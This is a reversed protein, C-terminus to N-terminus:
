FQYFDVGLRGSEAQLIEDISNLLLLFTLITKIPFIALFSICFGVHVNGVRVM